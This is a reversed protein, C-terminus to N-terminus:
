NGSKKQDERQKEVQALIKEKLEDDAQAAQVIKDYREVSLGEFEDITQTIKNQMEQQIARAKESDDADRLRSQYETRVEGIEVFLVAVEEIEEASVDVQPAAQQSQQQQAQAFTAPVILLAALALLSVRQLFRTM